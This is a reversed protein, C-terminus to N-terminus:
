EQHYQILMENLLIFLKDSNVEMTKLTEVIKEENQIRNDENEFYSICHHVSDHVIKHPQLAAKYAQTNGFRDKGDSEYWKGLRCEIHSGFLQKNNATVISDYANAKYIIHDIKALVIFVKNEMDNIVGAMEVADSNMEKMSTNFNDVSTSAEDAISTMTESKELIVSSEQKMSNISITIESTAKQTREALKRVEDAVVAFGRGHEGARAAEIAANLALLNTQEAIDKILDVISTIENTKENLDEISTNSDNIQEVLVQLKELINEVANMSDNSTQATHKTTTQVESLEKIVGSMEGQILGLGDGVSGVSRVNSHFSIINQKEHAEKMASIGDKVNHIAEAFDGSLGNDNLDYSFDGKSAKHVSINIRGTLDKILDVLIALLQTIEDMENRVVMRRDVEISLDGDATIQGIIGKVRNISDWISNSVDKTLYMTFFVVLASIISVFILSMLSASVMSDALGLTYNTLTDEFQKLKNIKKTITKFWVTPDVGFESEKSSAIQRYKNVETFSSDSKTKNYAEQMDQNATNMFLNTLAKQESVLSAFKAATARSFKDKAFVGSLVAREIGAREKSSIFVVFSNFNTRLTADQPITSFNSITDILQKNLSTYFIVADKVKSTLSKVKARMSPISNFDIEKTVRASADSPNQSIYARLEKIKVDSSNHQKPLIDVFKTGKSGLFGASAGREKQLEHLVASMKVSLKILSATDKLNTHNNWNTYSSKLSFIIIVSLVVISMFILKKRISMNKLM